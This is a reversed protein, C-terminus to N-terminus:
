LARARGPRGCLRDAGKKILPPLTSRAFRRSILRAELSDLAGTAELKFVVQKKKKNQEGTDDDDDDDDDDDEDDGGGSARWASSRNGRPAPTAFLDGGQDAGIGRPLFTIKLRECSGDIVGLADHLWFSQAHTLCLMLADDHAAASLYLSLETM